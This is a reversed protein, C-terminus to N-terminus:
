ICQLMLVPVCLAAVRQDKVALASADSLLGLTALSM